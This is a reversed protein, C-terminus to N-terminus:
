RELEEASVRYGRPFLKRVRFFAVFVHARGEGAHINVDVLRRITADDLEHLFEAHEYSVGANNILLGLDLGSLASLTPLPIRTDSM